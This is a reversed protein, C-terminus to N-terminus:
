NIQWKPYGEQYLACILRNLDNQKEDIGRKLDYDSLDLISWMSFTDVLDIHTFQSALKGVHGIMGKKLVYM